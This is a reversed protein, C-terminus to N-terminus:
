QYVRKIASFDPYERISEINDLDSFVCCNNYKYSLMSNFAEFTMDVFGDGSWRIGWSNAITVTGQGLDYGLVAVAHGGGSGRYSYRDIVDMEDMSSTWKVGIIGSGKGTGIWKVLSKAFDGGKPLRKAEVIKYEDRHDYADKPIRRAYTETYPFYKEEPIGAKAAVMGGSLTAGQDGRIGDAEQAFRYAANRSLQVSKGDTDLYYCHELCSSLSNGLCSSQRLQDEVVHFTRPDVVEPIEADTISTLFGLDIEPLNRDADNAYTYGTAAWAPSEFPM